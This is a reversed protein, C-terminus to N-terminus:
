KVLNPDIQIDDIDLHPICFKIQNKCLDFEEGYYTLVVEILAEKYEKSAKFETVVFKKSLNEKRKLEVIQKEFKEIALYSLEKEKWRRIMFKPTEDLWILM